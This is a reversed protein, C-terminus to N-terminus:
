GTASRPSRRRRCCFSAITPDAFSILPQPLAPYPQGDRDVQAIRAESQLLGSAGPFLGYLNDFTHNELYIVVVHEVQKLADRVSEPAPSRRAAAASVPQLSLRGELAWAAATGTVLTGRRLFERRTVSGAQDSEGRANPEHRPADGVAAIGAV